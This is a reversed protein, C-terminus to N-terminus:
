EKARMLEEINITKLKISVIACAVVYALIIVIALVVIPICNLAWSQARILMMNVVFAPIFLIFMEIAYPLIINAMSSGNSIYIAYVRINKNIRNIATSILCFATFVVILFTLMTFVHITTETENKLLTLGFGMSTFMLRYVDYKQSLSNCYRIVEEYTHNNKISMHSYALAETYQGFSYKACLDQTTPEYTINMGVPCIVQDDLSQADKYPDTTPIWQDGELIGAVKVKYHWDGLSMCPIQIEFTDGVSFADKYDYGLLIPLVAEDSDINMDDANWGDGQELKINLYEYAQYNLQVSRLSIVVDGDLEHVYNDNAYDYEDVFNEYKDSGVKTDFIEQEIYICQDSRWTMVDCYENDVLKNYFENLREYGDAEQAIKSMINSDSVDVSMSYWKRGNINNIMQVEEDNGIDIYYTLITIFLFFCIIFELMLLINVYVNNYFSRITEKIIMSMNM